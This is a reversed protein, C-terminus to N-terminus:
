KLLLLEERKQYLFRVLDYEFPSGSEYYRFTERHRMDIAELTSVGALIYNGYQVNDFPGIYNLLVFRLTADVAFGATSRVTNPGLGPLVLYPGSDVGWYALTRGFDENQKSLGFATAPDFLGGIGITSNTLFRGATVLVKKGKLQFASNYLTHVEGINGFFNSVGKQVLTPTIFEYGNVVPILVYKDLNYNFRYMGRNFGEWPDAIGAAVQEDDSFESVSHRAPVEPPLIVATTAVCGALSLALYLTFIIRYTRYLTVSM